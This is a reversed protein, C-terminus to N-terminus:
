HTSEYRKVESLIMDDFPAMPMHNWVKTPKYYQVQNNQNGLIDVKRLHFTPLIRDTYFELHFSVPIGDKWKVRSSTYQIYPMWYGIVDMDPTGDHDGDVDIVVRHLGKLNVGVMSCDRYAWAEMETCRTKSWKVLPKCQDNCPIWCDHPEIHGKRFQPFAEITDPLKRVPEEIHFPDSHKHYGRCYNSYDKERIAKGSSNCWAVIEDWPVGRLGAQYCYFYISQDVRPPPFDLISVSM